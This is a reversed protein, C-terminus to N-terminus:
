TDQTHVYPKVAAPDALHDFDPVREARLAVWGAVDARWDEWPRLLPAAIMKAETGKNAFVLVTEVKYAQM